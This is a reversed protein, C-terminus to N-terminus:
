ADAKNSLSKQYIIQQTCQATGAIIISNTPIADM